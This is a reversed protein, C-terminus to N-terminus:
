ALRSELQARRVRIAAAALDPNRAVALEVLADLAPDGFSQWWTDTRLSQQPAPSQHLFAGPLPAAPRVYPTRTACGALLTGTVILTLVPKM